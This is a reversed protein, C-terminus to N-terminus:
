RGLVIDLGRFLLEVERHSLHGVREILRSRDVAVIQSVNAVSDRPLGTTRSPLSINGPMNALRMSDTLPICVVTEIRSENFLDCQVVVVPRKFGPESGVPEPLDSWFVDGQTVVM